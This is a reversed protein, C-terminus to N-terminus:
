LNRLNIFHAWCFCQNHHFFRSVTCIIPFLQENDSNNINGKRCLKATILTGIIVRKFSMDITYVNSCIKKKKKKKILSRVEGSRM